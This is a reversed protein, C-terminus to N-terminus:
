KQNKVLITAKIRKIEQGISEHSIIKFSENEKLIEKTNSVHPGGCFEASLWIKPIKYPQLNNEETIFYVSVVDPYKQGFEMQAGIKEAENKKMEVKHINLGSKVIHNVYDEIKKIEEQTLKRHFNFDLRLREANINSGRQKIKKDILKQLSALLIHHLTHLKTTRESNDMLGGKFKKDMSFKSKEKHKEFQLYFENKLKTIYEEKEKQDSIDIEEVIMEIPFGYTEYIHFATQGDIQINQQKLINIVKLGNELTKKFKHEEKDIGELIFSEKEKLHTYYTGYKNIVITSLDKCINKKIGIKYIHRLMRRIIRRLIYGQDKNTPTVNDGLLFTATRAHELIIRISRIKNKDNKLENIYSINFQDNLFQLTDQFLDTLYVDTTNQCAMVLRELGGGFDINKQRMPIWKYTENLTYEMFVNNGIEIFRGSDDNIHYEPQEQEIIGTDYFIESTPGGIEGPVEARCWWNKNKSYPFIRYQWKEGETLNRPIKTKEETYLAEIGYAAFAKQWTQIAITDLFDDNKYVSVYLRRPDLGCEDVYFSLIWPIQDEKTFDGLSWNGVMEFFVLHRNDGIEEIDNTRICRQINHIRTGLPHKEGLLYRVLPFMGSNVFLLTSDNIPVLSTNPVEK